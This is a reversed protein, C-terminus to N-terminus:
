RGRERGNGPVLSIIAVEPRCAFRVPVISTGVGRSVYMRAQGTEYWGAVFRGSGHPLWLPPLLPVRVQGGHTHGALALDINPAISEFAAPSHFLAITYAGAPAGRFAREPDPDGAMADDLGVLWVDPRIIRGENVLLTVGAVAFAEKEDPPPRWHEWNGQVAFVGLPAHLAALVDHAVGVDGGDVTDGTLVILDPRSEALLALMRQERLGLGHTHLDSLHALTLPKAIAAQVPHRTLEIANPEVVAADLLLLFAAALVAVNAIRRARTRGFLATVARPGRAGVVRAGGHGM